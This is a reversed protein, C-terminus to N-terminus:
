RLCTNKESNSCSSDYKASYLTTLYTGDIDSILFNLSPPTAMMSWIIQECALHSKEKFM